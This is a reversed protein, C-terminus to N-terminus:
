FYKSKVKEIFGEKNLEQLTKSFKEALDKGKEGLAKQSFALYSPLENLVYITEINLSRKKAIFKLVGEDAGAAVNIRSAGLVKMMEDDDGCEIKKLGPYTDFKPDYSYGRVVGINKGKLDDFQTVKISSGNLAVLVTREMDLKESPFYLIKEREENKKIAFIAGATGEEVMKLARKWPVIQIDAEIGNRKCLESVITPHIGASQKNEMFTYPEWESSVIVLKEAWASLPLTFFCMVLAVVLRKM